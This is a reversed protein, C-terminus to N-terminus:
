SFAPRRRTGPLLCAAAALLSMAGPSPIMGVVAIPEAGAGQGRVGIASEFQPEGMLDDALRQRLGAALAAAAPHLIDSDVAASQGRWDGIFRFTSPAANGSALVTLDPESAGQGLKFRASITHPDLISSLRDVGGGAALVSGDLLSEATQGLEEGPWLLLCDMGGSHGDTEMASGTSHLEGGGLISGTAGAVVNGRAAAAM